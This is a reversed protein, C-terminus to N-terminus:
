KLIRMECELHYGTKTFVVDKIHEVLELIDKSTANDYNIVFGTHKESVMAGGIRYGKLGCDDILKAAFAGIPRKFTSGASPYELPQKAIRRAFFDDMKDKIMNKDGHRLQLRASLICCRHDHFYSHRYSFNLQHNDYTQIQNNEDLFTCDIITDKIEGDYAGANMYIAGGISAPIGYAFEIGSLQHELAFICVDRLSAGAQCTIINDTLTINNFNKNIIIVLGNVGEDLVLTNSGNGLIYYPIFHQNALEILAKIQVINEPWAIFRANGGIKLSTYSYLPINEKFLCGIKNLDQIFGIQSM